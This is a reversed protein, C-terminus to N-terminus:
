APHGETRLRRWDWWTDLVGVLSLLLWLSPMLVLASLILIKVLRPVEKKGFYFLGVALGIVLYVSALVILLNLGAWNYVAPLRGSLLKLCLAGLLLWVLGDAASWRRFPPWAHLAGPLQPAAARLVGYGALSFGMATVVVWGLAGEWFLRTVLQLARQVEAEPWGWQRYFVATLNLSSEFEQQWRVLLYAPNWGSAILVALAMLALLTLTGLTICPVPKQGQRLGLWMAGVASGLILLGLWLSLSPIWGAPM